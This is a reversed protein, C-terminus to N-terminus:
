EDQIKVVVKKSGGAGSVQHQFAKAADEFGGNGVVEYEAPVLKGAEILGAIVPIYKAIKQNLETGEPRGVEGLQICYTKGGEFDTIGTWDNTTAFYKSSSKSKKFLEKALVPDDAAVADLIRSVDGGTIDMVARIQHEPSQKYDFPVAGIAKVSAASKTSCSAAVKYGSAKALQVAAKGVSSAGGLVIVWEDKATPLNRPDPLALKLGDFLGLSATESSVGLTAAEVLSINDPKPITVAADFLFYEQAGNYGLSGLRTCGFVADGIKFGYKSKAESGAEVVVGSGDVGLGLPWGVVLLGYSAMYNDSPVEFHTM